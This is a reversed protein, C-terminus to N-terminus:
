IKKNKQLLLEAALTAVAEDDISVKNYNKEEQVKDFFVLPIDADKIKQFAFLAIRFMIAGIFFYPKRRAFKPNRTRDSLVGIIPQILM